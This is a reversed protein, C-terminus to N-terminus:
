VFTRLTRMVGSIAARMRLPSSTDGSSIVAAMAFASRSSDSSVLELEGGGVCRAGSISFVSGVTLSHNGSEMVVGLFRAFPFFFYIIVQNTGNFTQTSSGM